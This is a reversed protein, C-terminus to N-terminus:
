KDKDLLEIYKNIVDLNHRICLRLKGHYKLFDQLYLNDIFDRLNSDMAYLKLINIVEKNRDIEFSGM